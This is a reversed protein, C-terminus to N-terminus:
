GVARTDTSVAIIVFMLVASLLVEIGLSQGSSGAPLTAGLQAIEGFLGRITAAGAVAGAVQGAAYWPVERWPFHRTLAFACTVAPNFHAGSLHGTAVIMVMIILGFTFAIGVHTIATTTTNVMIAGCGAAVLAYTGVFEAGARRWLATM